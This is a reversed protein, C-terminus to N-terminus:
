LTAGKSFTVDGEFLRTVVDSGNNFELAWVGRIFDMAQTVASTITVTVYGDGLNDTNITISGPSDAIIVGNAVNKISMKVSYGDLNKASGSSDLWYFPVEFTVGQELLLDLKAAAM